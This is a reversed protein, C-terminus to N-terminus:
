HSKRDSIEQVKSFANLNNQSKGAKKPETTSRCQQVGWYFTSLRANM